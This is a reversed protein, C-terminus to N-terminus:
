VNASLKRTLESLRRRYDPDYAEESARAEKEGDFYRGTIEALEPAEVLRRTAAVGKELTDVVEMGSRRSMATPMYSGPHVSNVTVGSGQLEEALDRTHCILALKARCYAAVDTYGRELQPDDFDIPQQGISAVNVIRSPAARRLLPLLERTLLVPALYNVALRLEHGDASLQRSTGEVHFGIGANNVLVDLRDHAEAIRAALRRVGALSSFDATFTEGGTAEAVEALRRADRGHLLLRHGGAALDEALARGLGDSAGTILILAM